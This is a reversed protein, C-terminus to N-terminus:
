LNQSSRVEPLLHGGEELLHVPVVVAFQGEGLEHSLLCRKFLEEPGHVPLPVPADGFGHTLQLGSM